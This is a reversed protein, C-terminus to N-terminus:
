RTRPPTKKKKAAPKKQAPAPTPDAAIVEPPQSLRVQVLEPEIPVPAAVIPSPEPQVPEAARELSWVWGTACLALAGAGAAAAKWVKGHGKSPLPPPRLAPEIEYIALADSLADMTQFRDASNRRLCRDVIGRLARPIDEGSASTNGVPRPKQTVKQALLQEPQTADHPFRGQLLVYLVTGLAYIDARGDLAGAMTQEPAMYAPTGVVEGSRTTLHAEADGLVQAIGFDLVKVFDAEGNRDLLFLNDPKLDRHIVGAKHVAALAGCAQRVIKVAKAIALPGKRARDKLTEGFLPEMVCCVRGPGEELFDFIEVLHPHKVRNVARAEQVFRQLHLPDSAYVAKLTKLAVLRDLRIHRALFVRGMGGEGLPRLVEYSGVIVKNSDGLVPPPRLNVTPEIEEGLIVPPMPPPGDVVHQVQIDLTDLVDRELEVQELAIQLERASQFREAPDKALCRGLIEELQPSLHPLSPLPATQHLSRVSFPPRGSLLEFLLVGLGYVDSRVDARHGAAREPSLYAPAVLKSGPPTKFSAKTRFLLLGMELLKPVPESKPGTLYVNRPSLNGHIVKRGHLYHTAACIATLLRVAEQPEYPGASALRDALTPGDISETAVFVRGDPGCGATHRQVLHPHQFQRRGMARDLFRGYLESDKVVEARSVEVLVSHKSGAARALFAEAASGEAVKRLLEFGHV